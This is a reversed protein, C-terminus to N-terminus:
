KGGRDIDCTNMGLITYLLCYKTIATFIMMFALFGLLIRLIGTTLFISIFAFLVALFLRIVKDINGVNKKM